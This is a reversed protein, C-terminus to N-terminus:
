CKRTARYKISNDLLHVQYSSLVLQLKCADYEEDLQILTLPADDLLEEVLVLHELDLDLSTLYCKDYISRISLIQKEFVAKEEPLDLHM